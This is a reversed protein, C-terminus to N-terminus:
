WERPPVPRCSWGPSWPSCPCGSPPVPGDPQRAPRGHHPPAHARAGDHDHGRGHPARAGDDHNRDHHAHVDDGRGRRAHADDHVHRFSCMRNGHDRDDDGDHLHLIQCM